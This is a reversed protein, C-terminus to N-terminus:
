AANAEEAHYRDYVAQLSIPEIKVEALPLTALWGFLRSLEGETLITVRGRRDEQVTLDAALEAPVRPLPGTLQARIRHQRKLEAIIQTHVLRGQRLIAVRDCAAETESLVHSSFLITRGAAKQERLIALVEGRVTPDLNATPEDLIVLPTQTAIAAVLAIKQRMGTSCLAVPRSLDLSLREALARAREISGLPHLNSLFTLVERGRMSGFLRVEGPLYTVRGHVAVSQHYCDLGDITARGGTPRLFGMLTRILTTKGSGNPGLLGFVEGRKIALDCGDLALIPGYSKTLASTELIPDTM